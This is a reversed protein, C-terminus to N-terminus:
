GLTPRSGTARGSGCSTAESSCRPPFRSRAGTASWRPWTPCCRSLAATAREARYEQVFSFVGNLVIVIVIAWGLQPMGGVFALLAAGWLMLAFFHVMQALFQRPLSQSEPKPLRNEGQARLRAQAEETGLGERATGLVRLSAEPTLTALEALGSPPPRAQATARQDRPRPDSLVPM